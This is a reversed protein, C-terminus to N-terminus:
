GAGQLLALPVTACRVNTLVHLACHTRSNRRMHSNINGDPGRRDRGLVALSQSSARLTACMSTRSPGGLCSTSDARSLGLAAARVLLAVAPAGKKQTVKEQALLFLDGPPAPPPAGRLYVNLMAAPSVFGQIGALLMRPRCFSHIAPPSEM